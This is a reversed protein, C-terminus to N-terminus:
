HHHHHLIIELIKIKKKKKLHLLFLLSLSTLSETISFLHVGAMKDVRKVSYKKSETLITGLLDREAASLHVRGNLDGGTQYTSM